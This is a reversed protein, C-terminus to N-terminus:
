CLEVAGMTFLYLCLVALSWVQNLSTEEVPEAPQTQIESIEADNQPPVVSQSSVGAVSEAPDTTGSEMSVTPEPGESPHPPPPVVDTKAVPEEAPAVAATPAASSMVDKSPEPVRRTNTSTASRYCSELFCLQTNFPLRKGM